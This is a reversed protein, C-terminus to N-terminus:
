WKRSDCENCPIDSIPNRIQSFEIATQRVEEERNNCERLVFHVKTTAAM